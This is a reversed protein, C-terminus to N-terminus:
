EHSIARGEMNEWDRNNRVKNNKQKTAELIDPELGLFRAIYIIADIDKPFCHGGYGFDKIM